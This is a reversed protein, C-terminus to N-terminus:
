LRRGLVIGAFAAILVLGLSRSRATGPLRMRGGGPGAIASGAAGIEARVREVMPTAPPPKREWTGAWAVIGAIALLGVGIAAAAGAPGLHPALAITAAATLAGLALLAILAAVGSYMATRKLRAIRRSIDFTAFGLGAQVLLRWM